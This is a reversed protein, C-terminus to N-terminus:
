VNSVYVAILGVIFCVCVLLIKMNGKKEILAVRKELDAVRNEIKLTGFHEDVDVEEEKPGPIEAMRGFKTSHQDLWLFVQLPEVADVIVVVKFFPCGFFLKNPNKSTKSLYLVAYVGCHCKHAAGDKEHGVKASFFGQTESSSREDRGGGAIRRLASSGDDSEM